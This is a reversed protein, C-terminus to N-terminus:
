TTDFHKISILIMLIDNRNVLFPPPQFTYWEYGIAPPVHEGWERRKEGGEVRGWPQLGQILPFDSMCLPFSAQCRNLDGQTCNEQGSYNVYIM